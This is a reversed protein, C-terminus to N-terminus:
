RPSRRRPGGTSSSSTWSGPTPRLVAFTTRPSSPCACPITTSVWTRPERRRSPRVRLCSGTFIWRSKLAGAAASQARKGFRRMPVAAANAVRAPRQALGAHDLIQARRAPEARASDCRSSGPTGPTCLGLADRLWLRRNGDLHPLVEAFDLEDKPRVAKAKFLLVIEPQLYPIGDPTRSILTAAHVRIRPDRRCIWTDGDWQERMVDVRWPGDPERPGPRTPLDRAVGRDAAM